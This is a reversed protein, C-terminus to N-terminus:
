ERDLLNVLEPPTPPGDDEVIAAFGARYPSSFPDPGLFRREHVWSGTNILRTGETARWEGQDDGPLPGARHTHGFIVHGTPPVGLRDLVQGFAALASRRLAVGSVDARLPGMGARNLGAVAAGLGLAMARSRLSRRGGAGNLAEWATIQFSGDSGGGRLGGFEAVADIWAYM